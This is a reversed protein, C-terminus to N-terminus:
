ATKLQLTLRSIYECLAPVGQTRVEYEIQSEISCVSMVQQFNRGEQEYGFKDAMTWFRDIIKQLKKM